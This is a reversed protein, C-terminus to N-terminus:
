PAVRTFLERASALFLILLATSVGAFLFGVFWFAIFPAYAEILYQQLVTFQEPTLM